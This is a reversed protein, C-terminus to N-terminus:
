ENSSFKEKKNKDSCSRSGGDDDVYFTCGGFTAIQKTADVHPISCCLVALLTHRTGMKSRTMPHQIQKHTPTYISFVILNCTHAHIYTHTHTQFNTQELTYSHCHTHEHTPTHMYTIHTHTHTHARMRAGCSTFVERLLNSKLVQDIEIISAIFEYVISCLVHQVRSFNHQSFHHANDGQWWYRRLWKPITIICHHEHVYLYIYAPNQNSTQVLRGKKKSCSLCISSGACSNSKKKHLLLFFM